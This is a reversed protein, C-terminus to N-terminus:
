ILASWLAIAADASDPREGPRKAMCDRTLDAVVRPVGLGALVPTPAPRMVRVNVFAPDQPVEPYPSRGTLMQYLLVGLAYVDKATERQVMPAGFVTALGFDIIKVGKATMMVNLPTLDRHAIGRRHAVALMEAIMAATEVAERWPLAGQALRQALSEGTLLEMVVCPMAVAGDGGRAFGSRPAPWSSPWAAPRIMEPSFGFDPGVIADGFGYVKPVSPHRLKQMILPEQRAADCTRANRAFAPALVKVAVPQLRDLDIAEYVLSVGGRGLPKVLIFRDLITRGLGAWSV